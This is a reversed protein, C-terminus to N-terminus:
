NANNTKALEKKLNKIFNETKIHADTSYAGKSHLGSLFTRTGSITKKIEEIEKFGIDYQHKRLYEALPTMSDAIIKAEDGAYEHKFKQRLFANRVADFENVMEQRAVEKAWVGEIQLHAPIVIAMSIEFFIILFFIVIASYAIYDKKFNASFELKKM